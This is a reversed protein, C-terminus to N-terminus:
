QIILAIRLKQLMIVVGCFVLAVKQQLTVGLFPDLM